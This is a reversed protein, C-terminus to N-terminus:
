VAENIGSAGADLVQCDEPLVEDSLHLSVEGLHGEQCADHTLVHANCLIAEIATKVLIPIEIGSGVDGKEIVQLIGEVRMM